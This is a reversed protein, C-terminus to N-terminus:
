GSSSLSYHASAPYGGSPMRASSPPLGYLSSGRGSGGLGIGAGGLRGVSPGDSLGAGAGGLRGGLVGNGLGGGTDGGGFGGGAAGGGLGGFGILGPGGFHSGGYPGALGSGFGDAIGLSSPVQSGLSSVGPVGVVYSLGAGSGLSYNLPYNLPTHHSIPSQGQVGGSFGGYSPIGGGGPLGYQSPISGAASDQPHVGFGLGNGHAEVPAGINGQAGGPPAQAGINGQTGGTRAQAGITGQVGGPAVPAAITAALAGVTGQVGISAASVGVQAVGPKVKKVDAFKCHVQHGDITKIPDVLSARAAEETKYIFLAYGKSKGTAKDFGLPGDEVEGYSLFHSLLRDAPMDYPVNGVFIKRGLVKTSQPQPTGIPGTIGASALQTITMRTEIKKNPEKLALIAGDVHKFTIFGFGRSKGTAKDPVVTAEILEGYQSFITRLNESTIDWGLGRIFLKRQDLDRDAISRVADLVDPHNIVANQLIDLLQDNTFPSIIKRADETSLKYPNTIFDGNEELKRKKTLDM